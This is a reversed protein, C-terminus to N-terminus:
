ILAINFAQGWNRESGVARPHPIWATLMQRPLRDMPTRLVAGAWGLLRRHYSQIIPIVGLREELDLTTTKCNIHFQRTTRMTVHYMSRVCRRHFSTIAPVHSDKMAWCEAGHLLVTAVLVKYEIGRTRAKLDRDCVVNRLAGFAQSAKKIRIEVDLDSTLSPTIMSGLYKFQSTFHIFTTPSLAVDSLDPPVATSAAPQEPLPSEILRTVKM